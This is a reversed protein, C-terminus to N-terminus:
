PHPFGDCTSSKFYINRVEYRRFVFKLDPSLRTLTVAISSLHSPSLRRHRFIQPCTALTVAISSYNEATLSVATRDREPGLTNLVRKRRPKERLDVMPSLRTFDGRYVFRGISARLRNQRRYVVQPSLCTM